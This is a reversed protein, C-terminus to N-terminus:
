VSPSSGWESNLSHREALLVVLLVGRYPSHTKGGHAIIVGAEGLHEPAHTTCAPQSWLRLSLEWSLEFPSFRGLHPCGYGYFPAKHPQWPVVGAELSSWSVSAAM